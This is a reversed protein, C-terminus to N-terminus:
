FPPEGDALIEEFDELGSAQVGAFSEQPRQVPADYAPSQPTKAAHRCEPFRSETVGKFRDIQAYVNGGSERHSVTVRICRGVLIKLFDELSEFNMGDPIQAAKALIMLANFNFGDVALDNKSPELKKWIDLFLTRNQSGQQVDNRVTLTFACKWKGNPNQRIGANSIICEYEGCPVTDYSNSESYNTGFGM